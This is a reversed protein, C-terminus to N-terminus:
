LRVLKAVASGAKLLYIGAPMSSTSITLTNNIPHRALVQGQINLITLIGDYGPTQITVRDGTPNPSLTLRQPSTSSFEELGPLIVPPTRKGIYNFGGAYNGTIIEFSGNALPTIAPSTHWGFLTDAPNAAISDYIGAIRTFRGDINNDINNYFYIIGAESGVALLTEGSINRFFAPTSFGDWSLNYDTVNVKGLSDTILSFLPNGPSGTDRFLNLNGGKEGIILEDQGDKDLDFFQPTSNNGVDIQQWNKVPDGFRPISDPSGLNPLCLLTGDSHGAILDTLGDGNVDYFAPFLGNLRLSSLGGLDDTVAQFLPTEDTGTNRFWAIKSCYESHLFGQKYYSTDYYGLNGTFLDHVGDLDFDYLVPHSATGFDLTEDRFLRDSKLTFDPISNSGHNKYFWICNYNDSINLSPDFPAVVLDRKADNDIDIFAASPFSFLKIPNSASPYTTDMAVMLASDKSGGNFLATINPFDVDGLILDKVGDGNLDIALLTSGTHKPGSEIGDAGRSEPVTGMGDWECPVNLTIRNGGESEKFKGWCHDTLKYDLSDCTGYREMSLNKHYELYSGLGFFTLIDLDGDGDIDSIAPYDVSTVLIGVYSTYYYSELLSTVLTFKLGTVSENRYVMIGGNGYTFIDMRGDCNYDATMVWDHFVPLQLAYQPELTYDITNPTGQNILTLRRNGHRDFVLLDSTGDLNLDIECFQCSNFGGSYPLTLQASLALPFLFLFLTILKLNHTLLKLLIPTPLKKRPRM